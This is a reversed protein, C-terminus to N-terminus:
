TPARRSRRHRRDIGQPTRHGCVVAQGSRQSCRRPGWVRLRATHDLLNGGFGSHLTMGEEVDFTAIFLLLVGITVVRFVAIVEDFRSGSYFPRYLGNFIFLVLWCAYIMPLADTVYFSLTYLFTPVGDGSLAEWSRRVSELTGGVHKIWLLALTAANIGVFDSVVILLTVWTQSM